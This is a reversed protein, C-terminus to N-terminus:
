SRWIRIRILGLVKAPQVWDENMVRLTRFNMHQPDRYGSFSFTHYTNLWGYDFHGREAARRIRIM